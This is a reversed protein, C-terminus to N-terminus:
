SRSMTSYEFRSNVNRAETFDSWCRLLVRSIARGVDERLLKDAGVNRSESRAKPGSGLVALCTGSRVDRLERRRPRELSRHHHPKNRPSPSVQGSSRARPGAAPKLEEFVELSEPAGQRLARAMKQLDPNGSYLDSRKSVFEDIPNGSALHYENFALFSQFAEGQEASDLAEQLLEDWKKEIESPPIQSTAVILPEFKGEATAKEGSPPQLKTDLFKLSELAFDIRRTRAMNYIVLTFKEPVRSAKELEDLIVPHGGGYYRLFRVFERSQAAELAKGKESAEFLLNEGYIWRGSDKAPEAESKPADMAFLHEAMVPGQMVSPPVELGASNLAQSLMLRNPLELARFGVDTYLAAERVGDDSAQYQRKTEFNLFRRSGDVRYDLTEEDLVVVLSQKTVEDEAEEQTTTVTLSFKLELPQANLTGLLLLWFFFVPAKWSRM